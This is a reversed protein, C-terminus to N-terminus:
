RTRGRQPARPHAGDTPNKRAHGAGHGRQTSQAHAVGTEMRRLAESTRLSGDPGGAAFTQYRARVRVGAVVLVEEGDVVETRAVCPGSPLFALVIREAPVLLDRM